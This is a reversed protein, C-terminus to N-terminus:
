DNDDNIYTDNVENSLSEEPFENIQISKVHEGPKLILIERADGFLKEAILGFIRRRCTTLVTEKQSNRNIIINVKQWKAM